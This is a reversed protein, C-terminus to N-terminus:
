NGILFNLEFLIILYKKKIMKIIENRMNINKNIELYVIGLFSNMDGNSHPNLEKEVPRTGNEIRNKLIVKIKKIKSISIRIIRGIGKIIFEEKSIIKIIIKTINIIVIPRNKSHCFPARLQSL